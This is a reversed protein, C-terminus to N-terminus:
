DHCGATCVVPIARLFFRTLAEQWFGEAGNDRNAEWYEVAAKLASLGVLASLAPLQEPEMAALRTTADASAGSAVWQVLISLVSVADTSHADLFAELEAHNQQLFLALGNEMLVYNKRGYPLGKQNFLARYM